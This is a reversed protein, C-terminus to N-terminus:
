VAWPPEPDWLLRVRRHTYEREPYAKKVLEMRKNAWGWGLRNLSFVARDILLMAKADEIAMGDTDLPAEEGLVELVEYMYLIHQSM